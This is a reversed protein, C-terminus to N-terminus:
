LCKSPTPNHHKIGSEVINLNYLQRDGCINHTQIGSLRTTSSVVNYSLYTLSKAAPRLNEGPSWNGGGIFSVAVICQIVNCVDGRYIM